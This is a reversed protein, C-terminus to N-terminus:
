SQYAIAACIQVTHKAAIRRCMSAAIRSGCKPAAYCILRLYFYIVLNFIMAKYRSKRKQLSSEYSGKTWFACSRSIDGIIILSYESKVM